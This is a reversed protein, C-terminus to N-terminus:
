NVLEQTMAAGGMSALTASAKVVKHSSKAVWISKKDSVGEGSTIDVRFADFEGAPVTVKESGAVTLQYLKVKQTQVVFNRFTASYNEALPLCAIAQPGGAADAFLAGGLDAAIPRDQGNM